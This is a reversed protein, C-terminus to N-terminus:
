SKDTTLRRNVMLFNYVEPPHTHSRFLNHFRPATGVINRCNATGPPLTHLIHLQTLFFIPVNLAWRSFPFRVHRALQVPPSLPRKTSPLDM